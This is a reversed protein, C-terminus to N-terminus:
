GCGIEIRLEFVDADHQVVREPFAEPEGVTLLDLDAPAGGPEVDRRAADDAAAPLDVAVHEVEAELRAKEAALLDRRQGLRLAIREGPRTGEAGRDLVDGFRDAFVIELVDAGFDTADGAAAREGAELAMTEARTRQALQDVDIADLTQRRPGAEHPTRGIIAELKAAQPTIPKAVTLPFAEEGERGRVPELQRRVVLHSVDSVRGHDCRQEVRNRRRFKAGVVAVIVARRTRPEAHAGADTRAALPTESGRALMDCGEGHVRSRCGSAIERIGRD